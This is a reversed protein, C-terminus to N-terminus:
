GNFDDFNSQLQLSRKNLFFQNFLRILTNHIAEFSQVLLLTPSGIVFAIEDVDDSVKGGLGAIEGEFIEIHM